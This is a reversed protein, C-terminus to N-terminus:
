GVLHPSKIRRQKSPATVDECSATGLPAQRHPRCRDDAGAQSGAHTSRRTDGAPPGVPPRIACGYTVAANPLHEATGRIFAPSMDICVEDVAKAEGGHAALDDAVRGRHRCRRGRHRVARPRTVATADIRAWAQDVYHHLVRWLRTDHEGRMRAVTKVPMASVMTLLLAEFLPSTATPGHGGCMSRGSGARPAASARCPRAGTARVQGLTAGHDGGDLVRRAACARHGAAMRSRSQARRRPTMLGPRLFPGQLGFWSVSAPPPVVLGLWPASTEGGVRFLSFTAKSRGSAMASRQKAAAMPQAQLLAVRLCGAIESSARCGYTSLSKRAVRLEPSMLM